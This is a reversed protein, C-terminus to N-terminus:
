KIVELNTPAAPPKKNSLFPATNSDGSKNGATDVSIMVFTMTYDEGDPASTVFNYPLVPPHPIIAILTRTGDTRYLEYEKMDPETNPTWTAKLAWDVGFCFSPILIIALILILKKM